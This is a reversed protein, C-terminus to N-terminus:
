AGRGLADLIDPLQQEIRWRAPRQLPETRSVAEIYDARAMPKFGMERWTATSKADVVSYGRGRLAWALVLLGIRSAGPENSFLSEISFSSGAAVGYLGGVLTKQEDRVEVSHVHGADFADAYARMIPPTIWTLPCQGDRTAACNRIVTEFATDCTVTYRCRRLRPIRTIRLEDLVLVWREAPSWWKQPGIHAFPYLGLRYAAEIAAPSLDHAIGALGPPNTLALHPDPLAGERLLDRCLVRALNPLGTIRCPRLPWLSGLAWRQLKCKLPERFDDDRSSRRGSDFAVAGVSSM